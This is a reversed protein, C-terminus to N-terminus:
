KPATQAKYMSQYQKKWAKPIPAWKGNGMIYDVKGTIRNVLACRHIHVLVVKKYLARDFINVAYASTTIISILLLAIIIKRM